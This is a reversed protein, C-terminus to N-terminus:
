QINKKHFVYCTTPSKNLVKLSCCNRREGYKPNCVKFPFLKQRKIVMQRKTLVINDLYTCPNTSIFILYEFQHSERSGVGSERDKRM